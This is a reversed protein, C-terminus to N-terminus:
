LKTYLVSVSDKANLTDPFKALLFNLVDKRHLLVARHAPTMGLADLAVAYEPRSLHKQLAPVDNDAAARHSAEIRERLAPLTHSLYDRVDRHEPGDPLRLNCVEEMQGSLFASELGELDGSRALEMVDAKTSEQKKNIRPGKSMNRIKNLTKALYAANARQNNKLLQEISNDQVHNNLGCSILAHYMQRNDKLLAAYHLASRGDMDKADRCKPFNTAIYTAVELHGYMVAKHLPTAGTPDRALALDKRDMLAQVDRLNGRVVARHVDQIREKVFGWTPFWKIGVYQSSTFFKEMYLPVNDLFQQVLTNDCKEGALRDGQGLLVLEELAALDGQVILERVHSRVVPKNPVVAEERDKPGQPAIKNRIKRQRDKLANDILQQLPLEDRSKIYHEARHGFTDTATPDAGAESLKRFMEGDDPLVASYHLPTRGNHDRAHLLAPYRALLYRVVELRSFLVAKHLPTAGVNDRCFALKKRDLLHQLERLRGRAVARHIQDMKNEVNRCIDKTRKLLLRKTLAKVESTIIFDYYTWEKPLNLRIDNDEM